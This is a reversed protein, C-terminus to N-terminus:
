RSCIPRRSRVGRSRLPWSEGADRSRRGRLAAIMPVLETEHAAVYDTADHMVHLFKDILPRHEAVWATNAMLVGGAYHKGIADYPYGIIRVKGTAVAASLDPEYLTSGTVRGQEMAALTASAPM